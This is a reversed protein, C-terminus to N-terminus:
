ATRRILQYEYLGNEVYRRNVTHSGWKAKRFDRLRAAVGSESGGCITKIALLTRWRGDQMLNFVRLWQGTLRILDRQESYTAGDFIPLSPRAEGLRSSHADQKMADLPHPVRDLNFVLQQQSM